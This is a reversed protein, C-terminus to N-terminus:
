LTEVAIRARVGAPLANQWAQAITRVCADPAFREAVLAAASHQPQLEGLTHRALMDRVDREMDTYSAVTRVFPFQQTWLVHRGFSLAELVMLSLGDHPTYRILASVEQYVECLNDRWGLNVVDTGPPADIEGGGVVIYRVPEDVLRRMLREFARRGYFDSRTRPVYLMITFREPLPLSRACHHRPPLPAIRPQFGFERLQEATWAVEALHTATRSSLLARLRPNNRLSAIDSGVWHVVRPTRLLRAALHVWRDTVPSGISYWVECSMLTLISTAVELRSSTRLLRTEWDPAVARAHEAVQACFLGLGSIAVRHAPRQRNAAQHAAADDLRREFKAAVDHRAFTNLVFTRGDHNLTLEGTTHLRRLEQLRELVQAIGRAAHVHPFAYNWVVHRARSLAELVLMSKGDHEPQRLLVVSGDIRRPMDDVMGHFFVNPPAGASPGGAGVVDFRVDPMARAAAYVTSAGYFERRPEPLYTLVRFERPFAEVPGGSTVATVPEYEANVGLLALEDVLWPCDSLHYLREQKVVELEFPDEQAKIVDSGAWMVIVPINRQRAAEVLATNPAPGGFSILADARRMALLARITGTRSADYARLHWRASHENVLRALFQAYYDFGVVVARRKKTM